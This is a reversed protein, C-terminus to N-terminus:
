PTNFITGIGQLLVKNIWGIYRSTEFEWDKGGRGEIEKPLWSDTRQMQLVIETEYIHDNTDHKLNWMYTIDYTIQREKQSVESLIIIELDMWTAAFSMIENKEIALYNNQQTHTHTHTHTYLVKEKDM